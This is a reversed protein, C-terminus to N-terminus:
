NETAIRRTTRRTGGLGRCFGRNKSLRTNGGPYPARWIRGYYIRRRRGLGRREAPVLRFLNGGGGRSIRSIFSKCAPQGAM